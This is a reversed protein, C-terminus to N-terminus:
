RSAGSVSLVEVHQCPQELCGRAFGRRTGQRKEGLARPYSGKVSPLRYCLAVRFQAPCCASLGSSVASKFLGKSCSVKQSLDWPGQCLRQPPLTPLARPGRHCTVSQEAAGGTGEQFAQQKRVATPATSQSAGPTM